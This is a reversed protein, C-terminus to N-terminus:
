GHKGPSLSPYLSLPESIKGGEDDCRVDWSGEQLIGRCPSLRSASIM